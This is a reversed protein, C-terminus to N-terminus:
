TNSDPNRDLLDRLRQRLRGAIRNVLHDRSLFGFMPKARKDTRKLAALIRYHNPNLKLGREFAGFAPGRQQNRLYVIGMNCLLDADYFERKVAQRCLKVAEESRGDISSLALGLYSIYKLPMPKAPDEQSLDIAQQFCSAAEKHARRKLNALGSHFMEESFVATTSNEASASAEM